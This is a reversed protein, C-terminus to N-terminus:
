MAGEGRTNSGRIVTKNKGRNGEGKKVGLKPLAPGFAWRGKKKEFSWLAGGGFVRAGRPGTAPNKRAVGGSKKEQLLRKKITKEGEV